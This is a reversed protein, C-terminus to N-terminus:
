PTYVSAHTKNTPYRCDVFKVPLNERKKALNKCAETRLRRTQATPTAALHAYRSDASGQSMRGQGPPYVVYSPNRMYRKVRMCMGPTKQNQTWPPVYVALGVHLSLMTECTPHAYTNLVVRLTVM